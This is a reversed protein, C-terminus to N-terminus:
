CTALECRQCGVLNVRRGGIVQAREVDGIDMAPAVGNEGGFPLVAEGGAEMGPADVADIGSSGDALQIDALVLGPPKQRAMATAESYTRALAVFSAGGKLQEVVKKANEFVAPKAEPAASM